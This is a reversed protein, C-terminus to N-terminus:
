KEEVFSQPVIDNLSGNSINCSDDLDEKKMQRKPKKSSSPIKKLSQSTSDLNM